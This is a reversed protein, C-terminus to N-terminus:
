SGPKSKQALVIANRVHGGTTKLARVAATRPVGAKLM